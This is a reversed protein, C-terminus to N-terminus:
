RQNSVWDCPTRVYASILLFQLMNKTVVHCPLIYIFNPARQACLQDLPQMGCPCMWDNRGRLRQCMDFYLIWHYFSEVQFKSLISDYERIVYMYFNFSTMNLNKSIKMLEVLFWNSPQSKKIKFGTSCMRQGNNLHLEAKKYFTIQGLDAWTILIYPTWHYYSWAKLSKTITNTPTHGSYRCLNAVFNWHAIGM